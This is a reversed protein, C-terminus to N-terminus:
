RKETELKKLGGSFINYSRAASYEKRGFIASPSIQSIIKKGLDRALKVCKGRWEKEREVADDTEPDLACLWDRFPRDILDYFDAVAKNAYVKASCNNEKPVFDGGAALNVDKAFSWVKKSVEDCFDVSRLVTEQWEKNMQSILSTHFRLSDSFLNEVSSRQSGSYEISAIKFEAFYKEPLLGLDTLTTIWRMVGPTKGGQSTSIMSAFDRWFHKGYEHKKPIYNISNKPLKWLTMPEWFATESEFYDGGLIRYGTVGEDSRTLLSRRSQLTYLEAPNNPFVIERKSLPPKVTIEWIPKEKKWVEDEDINYAIFNLMLTEFLNSGKASILGLEGLWGIGAGAKVANDDYGNMNLLWRAAQSYKMTESEKGSISAFLRAKHKSKSLEGNLKKANYEGNPVEDLSSIEAVQYFPREPHFLYFSERQTELYDAIPKEPFKGADWLEKWRDLADDPDGPTSSDGGTDYRSFVTHLIALLLRLVAIDQTPLEGCLDKYLHANKFLEILSVESVECKENIVRIWREDLLNFEKETM